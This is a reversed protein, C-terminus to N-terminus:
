RGVLLVTPLLEFVRAEFPSVKNFNTLFTKHDILDYGHNRLVYSFLMIVTLFAYLTKFIYVSYIYVFLPFM